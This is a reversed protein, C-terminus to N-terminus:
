GVIPITFLHELMPCVCCKSGLCVGEQRSTSPSLLSGCCSSPEPNVVLAAKEPSSVVLVATDQQRVLMGLELISLSKCRRVGRTSLCVAMCPVASDRHRTQM